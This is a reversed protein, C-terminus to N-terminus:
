RELSACQGADDEFLVVLMKRTPSKELFEKAAKIGIIPSGEVLQGKHEYVGPGAFCDFYCLEANRSGLIASWTPLYKELILHKIRSVEKLHQVNSADADSSM